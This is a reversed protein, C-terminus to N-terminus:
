PPVEFNAMIRIHFFNGAVFRDHSRDVSALSHPHAYGFTILFINIPNLFSISTGRLM